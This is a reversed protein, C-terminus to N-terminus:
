LWWMARTLLFMAVLFSVAGFAFILANVTLWVRLGFAQAHLRARAQETAPQAFAAAEKRTYGMHTVVLANLTANQEDHHKQWAEYQTVYAERCADIPARSNLLFGYDVGFETQLRQVIENENWAKRLPTPSEALTGAAFGSMHGSLTLMRARRKANLQLGLVRYVVGSVITAFLCGLTWKYDAKLLFQVKDPYAAALALLTTSLGVLWVAAQAADSQNARFEDAERELGQKLLDAVIASLGQRM